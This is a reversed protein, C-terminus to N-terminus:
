PLNVLKSLSLFAPPACHHLLTTPHSNDNTSTSVAQGCVVINACSACAGGAAGRPGSYAVFFGSSSCCNTAGMANYGSESTACIRVAAVNGYYLGVSPRLRM